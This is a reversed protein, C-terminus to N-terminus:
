AADRHITRATSLIEQRLRHNQSSELGRRTVVDVKRGFLESLEERMDVLDFLSWHAEPSFALLVDVDSTADFDERLISGFLSLETISWRRCFQDIAAQPIPLNPSEM